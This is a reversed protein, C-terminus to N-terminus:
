TVSYPIMKDGFKNRKEWQDQNEKNRENWRKMEEITETAAKMAMEHTPKVWKRPFFYPTGIAVKGCYWILRFPKFPSNLAKLFTFNSM